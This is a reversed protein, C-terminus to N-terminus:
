AVTPFFRHIEQKLAEQGYPFNQLCANMSVFMDNLWGNERNPSEEIAVAIGRLSLILAQLLSQKTPGVATQTCVAKDSFLKTLQNRLAHKLPCAFLLDSLFEATTNDDRCTHFISKVAAVQEVSSRASAFTLVFSTQSDRWKIPLLIPKERIEAFEKPHSCLKLAAVRTSIENM